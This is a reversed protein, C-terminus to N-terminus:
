EDVLHAINDAQVQIRRELRHHQANVLLALYLCQVARLGYQRQGWANGLSASVVVHTVTRGREKSRQVNDSAFHDALHVPTMAAVFEQTEQAGDFGAHRGVQIHMQHHVIVACM